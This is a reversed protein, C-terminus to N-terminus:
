IDRLSVLDPMLYYSRVCPLFIYYLAPATCSIVTPEVQLWFSYCWTPWSLSLISVWLVFFSYSSSGFPSPSVVDLFNTATFPHSHNLISTCPVLQPPRRGATTHIASISIVQYNAYLVLITQQFNWGAVVSFHGSIM